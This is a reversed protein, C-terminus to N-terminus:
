GENVDNKARKGQMRYAGVYHGAILRAYLGMARLRRAWHNGGSCAEMAILCGPRLQVCWAVFKDRPLAKASMVRGAANVARGPDRAKGFGCRRTSDYGHPKEQQAARHGVSWRTCCPLQFTLCQLFLSQGDERGFAQM